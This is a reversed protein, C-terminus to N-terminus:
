VLISLVLFKVMWKCIICYHKHNKRKRKEELLFSPTILLSLVTCFTDSQIYDRKTYKKGNPWRMKKCCYGNYLVKLRFTKGNLARSKLLFLSFIPKEYEKRWWCQVWKMTWLNLLILNYITQRNLFVFFM